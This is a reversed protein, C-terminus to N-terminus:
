GGLLIHKLFGGPSFAADPSRREALVDELTRRMAASRSAARALANVFGPRAVREQARDYARFLGRLRRELAHDYAALADATPAGRRLADDAVDAAIRATEMAKGMGEGSLAYTSGAAEGVVLLREGSFPAGCLGTRLPAGAAEGVTGATRYLRGALRNDAELRRELHKLRPPRGAPTPPGGVGTNLVTPSVPFAWGYGPLLGRDFWLHLRTLGHPRQFTLFRRMAHGRAARRVRADSLLGLGQAAGGTALVTLAGRFVAEGGPTRATVRAGEAGREVATARTERFLDAGARGAADQLAADFLTRRTVYFTGNLDVGTGNPAHPRLGAAPQLHATVSDFLDLGQLAAGADAMLGGGCAKDRGRAGAELLAVRFGRGAAEVAFACGAPGAGIVVMDHGGAAM